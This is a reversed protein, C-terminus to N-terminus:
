CNYKKLIGRAAIILFGIISILIGEIMKGTQILAAGTSIFGIGIGLLAERTIIKNM